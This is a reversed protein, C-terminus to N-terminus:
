TGCCKKYKKGSGCPCADNRGPHSGRVLPTHVQKNYDKSFDIDHTSPIQFSFKTRGMSTTVAFDGSSIIDMGILVDMGNLIGKTVRLAKFGVDNPLIINISYTDVYSEGNAHYVKQKGTSKLGLANVVNESIVSGTAGTDWLARFEVLPPRVAEPPLLAPDFAACVWCSTNLVPSIASYDVTFSKLQIQSM